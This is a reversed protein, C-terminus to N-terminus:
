QSTTRRHQGRTTHQRPIPLGYMEPVAPYEPSPPGAVTAQDHPGGARQVQMAARNGVPEAPDGVQEAHVKVVGILPQRQLEGAAGAQQGSPVPIVAARFWSPSCAGESDSLM